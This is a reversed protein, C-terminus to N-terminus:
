PAIMKHLEAASRLADSRALLLSEESGRARELRELADELDIAMQLEESRLVSGYIALLDTLQHRAGTARDASGGVSAEDPGQLWSGFALAVEVGGIETRRPDLQVAGPAGATCLFRDAVIVLRRRVLQRTADARRDDRRQVIWSVLLGFILFEFVSPVFWDLLEGGLTVGSACENFLCDWINSPM